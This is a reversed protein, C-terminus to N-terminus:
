QIFAEYNNIVGKSLNFTITLSLYIYIGYCEYYATHIQTFARVLRLILPKDRNLGKHLVGTKLFSLKINIWLRFIFSFDQDNIWM